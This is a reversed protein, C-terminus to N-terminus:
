NTEQVLHLCGGEKLQAEVVVVRLWFVFLDIIAHVERIESFSESILM